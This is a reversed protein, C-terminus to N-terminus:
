GFRRAVNSYHPVCSLNGIAAMSPPSKLMSSVMSTVDSASVKMLESIFESTSKRHGYTLIQKGIDEAVIARGELTMLVSGIAATKARELEVKNVNKALGQLESVMIDVLKEAYEPPAAGYVGTLCRDDFATNIASFNQVWHYKTLVNLYLRSHMGKGPGGPSFSGGGGMMYLLVTMVSAGKVDKWGGPSDFALIIHTLPDTAPLIQELRVEGGVYVSKPPTCKDGQPAMALMPEAIKLVEQHDAGAVALVIRPATYNRAVFEHLEETSVTQLTADSAILPIGLGGKYAASQLAESLLVQPNKKMNDIDEKLRAVADQLEWSTFKPNMVSDCLVELAEPVHNRLCDVSYYMQERAAAALMNGGMGAIENVIRFHTRNKTSKFAMYELVNSIGSRGPHEYISGSAVVIAACATPGWSNESAVRCGNPLTTLETIPPTAPPAEAQPVIFGPLPDTLSVGGSGTRGFLSSLWGGSPQAPQAAALAPGQQLGQGASIRRVTQIVPNVTRRTAKKWM